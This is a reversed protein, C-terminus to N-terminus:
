FPFFLFGLLFGRFFGAIVVGFFTGKGGWFGAFWGVEHVSM